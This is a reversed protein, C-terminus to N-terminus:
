KPTSLIMISRAKVNITNELVLPQQKLPGGWIEEASYLILKLGDWLYMAKDIKVDSKEFNLITTLHNIKQKNRLIIVNKGEVVDVLLDTRNM